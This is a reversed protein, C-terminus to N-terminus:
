ESRSQTSTQRSIPTFALKYPNKKVTEISDNGYHKYIKAAFATSIDYNQLFLMINKIEKQREWSESIRAIRKKGIGDVEALREPSDEIVAITDTGFKKVIKKAYVAGVGKILGSGLYKEIGYVTAPVTEEWKQASFQTGYKPNNTWEGEILLVSGVVADALNGVVTVLEQYGKVSVKLVSYGTDPSQFTIREVVCRIRNM